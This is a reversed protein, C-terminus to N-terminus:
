EGKKAAQIFQYGCYWVFPVGLPISYGVPGSFFPGFQIM